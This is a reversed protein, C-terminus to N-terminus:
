IANLAVDNGGVSVNPGVLIFVIDGASEVKVYLTLPIEVIVPVKGM